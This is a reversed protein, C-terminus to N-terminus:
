SEGKYKALYEILNMLIDSSDKILGLGTNCNSCLLGRIKGTKHDHDVCLAKKFNSQHKFCGLCKGEQEAFMVNYQEITIRYNRALNYSQQLIKDEISKPRMKRNLKYKEKNLTYFEKRCFSCSSERSVKGNRTRLHISKTINHKICFIKLKRSSEHELM